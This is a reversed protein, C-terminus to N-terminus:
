IGFGYKIHRMGDMVVICSSADSTSGLYYYAQEASEFVEVDHHLRPPPMDFVQLVPLIGHDSFDHRQYLMETLGGDCLVMYDAVLVYSGLRKGTDLLWQWISVTDRRDFMYVDVMLGSSWNHVFAVVRAQERLYVLFVVNHKLTIYRSMFSHNQFEESRCPELFVVSLYRHAAEVASSYLQAALLYDIYYEFTVRYYGHLRVLESYDNKVEMCRDFFIGVSENLVELKEKDGATVLFLGFYAGCENSYDERITCLEVCKLFYSRAHDWCDRGKTQYLNGMLLNLRIQADIDADRRANELAMYTQGMLDDSAQNSSNFRDFLRRINEMVDPPTEPAEKRPSSAVSSCSTASCSDEESSSTLIDVSFLPYDDEEDLLSDLELIAPLKEPTTSSKESQYGDDSGCIDDLDPNERCFLDGLNANSPKKSAEVLRNSGFVEAIEFEMSIRTVAPRRKLGGVDLFHRAWEEVWRIKGLFILRRPIPQRGPQNFQTM